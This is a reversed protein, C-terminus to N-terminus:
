VEWFEPDSDGEVRYVFAFGVVVLVFGCAIQFSMSMTEPFMVVTIIIAPLIAIISLIDLLTEFISCPSTM